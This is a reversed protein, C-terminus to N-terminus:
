ATRRLPALGVVLVTGCSTCVRDPCDDGHGDRCDVVEFPVAQGCTVCEQADVAAWEDTPTM